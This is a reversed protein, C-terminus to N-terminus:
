LPHRQQCYMHHSLHGQSALRLHLIVTKGGVDFVEIVEGAFREVEEDKKFITFIRGDKVAFGRARPTRECMTVVNANKVFLDCEEVKVVM